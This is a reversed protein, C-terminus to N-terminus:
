GDLEASYGKGDARIRAWAHAADHEFMVLWGEDAAEAWLRRKTELTVLPEVDYGM